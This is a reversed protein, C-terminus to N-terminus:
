SLNPFPHKLKTRLERLRSFLKEKDFKQKYSAKFNAKRVAEVFSGFINYYNNLSYSRSAKSLENVDNTTPTRDLRQSNAQLSLILHGKSFEM